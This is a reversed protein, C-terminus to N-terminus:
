FDIKVANSQPQQYGGGGGQKSPTFKEGIHGNLYPMNSKSVANWLAIEMEKGDPFTVIGSFDPSKEGKKMNNKFVSVRIKTQQNM